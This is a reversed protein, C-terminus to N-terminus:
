DPKIVKYDQDHGDTKNCLELIVHGFTRSRNGPENLTKFIFQASKINYTGGYLKNSQVNDFIVRVNKNPAFNKINVSTLNFMIPVGMAQEYMYSSMNYPNNLMDYDVIKKTGVDLRAPVPSELEHNPSRFTTKGNDGKMSNIVTGFNSFVMKNGNLLASISESDDVMLKSDRNYVYTGKGDDVVCTNLNLKNVDHYLRVIVLDGEGKTKSHKHAMKNLVYLVGNDNFLEMSKAYIGYKRQINYLVQKLEGPEVILDSYSENNDPKDIIFKKIYPNNNICAVAASIPTCPKDESGFVYNHIYTKMKLDDRLLLNMSIAIPTENTITNPAYKNGKITDAAKQTSRTRDMRSFSPIREKDVYVAFTDEFLLEKETLHKQHEGYNSYCQIQAIIEKDYIRFFDLHKDLVKCKLKYSPIFKDFYDCTKTFEVISYPVFSIDRGPIVFKINWSYEYFLTSM